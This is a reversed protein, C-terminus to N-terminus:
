KLFRESFGEKYARGIPIAIGEGLHVQNGAVKEIKSTNIIYSKHIRLFLTNDLSDEWYRLPESSLHKKGPLIIETYDADSKIYLINDINIKIHENCFNFCNYKKAMKNFEASITVRSSLRNRINRNISSWVLSLWWM